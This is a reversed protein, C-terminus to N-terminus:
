SNSVCTEKKGWHRNQYIKGGGDTVVKKIKAEAKSLDVELQPDFLVAIEYQHM